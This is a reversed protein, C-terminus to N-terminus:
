VEIKANEEHFVQFETELAKAIFVEEKTKIM